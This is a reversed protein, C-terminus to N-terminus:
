SGGIFPEFLELDTRRFDNGKFLLPEGALKALAYPFCDGFNLGAHHRGKGFRRYAERAIEIQERTVSVVQIAAKELLHDLELGGEEGFRAEIVISTELLSAASLLRNDDSELATEFQEAEPEDCLIAVLVSTDLVM